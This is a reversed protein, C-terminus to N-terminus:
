GKSQPKMGPVFPFVAIREISQRNVVCGAIGTDKQLAPYQTCNFQVLLGFGPTFSPNTAMAITGKIVATHRSTYIM